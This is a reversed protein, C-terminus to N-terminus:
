CRSAVEHRARVHVADAVHEEVLPGRARHREDAVDGPRGPGGAFAPETSGTM